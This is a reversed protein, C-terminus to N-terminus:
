SLDYTTYGYQNIMKQLELFQSVASKGSFINKLSHKKFVITTKPNSYFIFILKTIDRVAVCKSTGLSNESAFNKACEEFCIFKDSDNYRLAIGTSNIEVIKYHM